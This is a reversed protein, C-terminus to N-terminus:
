QADEWFDVFNLNEEIWREINTVSEPIEVFYPDGIEPFIKIRYPNM